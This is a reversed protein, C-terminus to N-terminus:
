VEFIRQEKYNYDDHYEVMGFLDLLSLQRRRQIYEQLAQAAVENANMHGSLQCAEEILRDEIAITTHM